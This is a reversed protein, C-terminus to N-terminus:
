WVNPNALVSPSLTGLRECLELGKTTPYIFLNSMATELYPMEGVGLFAVAEDFTLTGQLLRTIQENYIHQTARSPIGALAAVLRKHRGKQHVGM